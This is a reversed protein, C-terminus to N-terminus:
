GVRRAPKRNQQDLLLVEAEPVYEPPFPIEDEDTFYTLSVSLGARSYKKNLQDRIKDFRAKPASSALSTHAWVLLGSGYFDFAIRLGGNRLERSREVADLFEFILKEALALSIKKRLLVVDEVSVKSKNIDQRVGKPLELPMKAQAQRKKHPQGQSVHSQIEGAFQNFWARTDDRTVLAIQM